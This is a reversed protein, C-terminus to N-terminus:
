LKIDNFCDTSISNEERSLCDANIFIIDIHM